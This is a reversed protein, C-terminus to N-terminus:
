SKYGSLARWLRFYSSRSPTRVKNWSPTTTACRHPRTGGGRQEAEDAEDHRNATMAGEAAETRPSGGLGERGGRPAGFAARGGRSRSWQWKDPAPWSAALVALLAGIRLASQRRCDGLSQGAASSWQLVLVPRAGDHEREGRSARLYTTPRPERGGLVCTALRQGGSPYAVRQAHSGSPLGVGCPRIRIPGDTCSSLYRNFRREFM